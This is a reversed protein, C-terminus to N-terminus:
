LGFQEAFKILHPELSTWRTDKIAQVATAFDADELVILKDVSKEVADMVRMRGRMTPFDFGERPAVKLCGKLMTATTIEEGTSTAKFTINQINKM